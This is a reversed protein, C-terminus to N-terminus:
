WWPDSGDLLETIFNHIDKQTLKIAEDPKCTKQTATLPHPASITCHHSNGGIHSLKFRDYTPQTQQQNEGQEWPKEGPERTKGGGGGLFFFSLVEGHFTGSYIGM